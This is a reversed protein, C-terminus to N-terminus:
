RRQAKRVTAPTHNSTWAVAVVEFEVREALVTVPRPRYGPEKDAIIM